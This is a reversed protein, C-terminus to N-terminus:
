IAARRGLLLSVVAVVLFVVFLVKAIGAASAAIGGFGFVAAIIAVVFFVVAWRLMASEGRNHSRDSDHVRPQAIHTGTAIGPKEVSFGPVGGDGRRV